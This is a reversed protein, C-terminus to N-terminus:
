TKTDDLLVRVSPNDALYKEVVAPTLRLVVQLNETTVPLQRLKLVAVAGVFGERVVKPELGVLMRSHSQMFDLEKKVEKSLRNILTRISSEQQKLFPVAARALDVQRPAPLGKDRMEQRIRKLIAIQDELKMATEQPPAAFELLGKQEKTLKEYIFVEASIVKMGLKEAALAALERKMPAPKGAARMEERLKMLIAFKKEKPTIKKGDKGYLLRRVDEKPMRCWFVRLGSPTMRLKKAAAEILESTELHTKGKRLEASVEELVATKEAASRKRKEFPPPAPVTHPTVVPVPKQWELSEYSVRRTSNIALRTAVTPVYAVSKPKDAGQAHEDCTGAAVNTVPNARLGRRGIQICVICRRVESNCPEFYASGRSAGCCGSRNQHYNAGSLELCAKKDAGDVRFPCVHPFTNPATGGKWMPQEKYNM